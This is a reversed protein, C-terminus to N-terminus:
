SKRERYFLIFSVASSIISLACLVLVQLHFMGTQPLKSPVEEDNPEEKPVNPTGIHKAELAIGETTDETVTLIMPQTDKSTIFYIGKEKVSFYAFGNKGTVCSDNAEADINSLLEPLQEEQWDISNLSDFPKLFLFNGESTVTSVHYISFEIGEQPVEDIVYKISVPFELEKAEVSLGSLCLIILFCMMPRVFWRSSM